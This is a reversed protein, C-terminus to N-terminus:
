DESLCDFFNVFFICDLSSRVNILSNQLLSLVLNVLLYSNLYKLTILTYLIYRIELFILSKHFPRKEKMKNKCIPWKEYLENKVCPTM